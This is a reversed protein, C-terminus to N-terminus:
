IMKQLLTTFVYDFFGLYLATAVSLIIVVVTFSTAQKRTPWAVHRLEQRTERIYNIIRM